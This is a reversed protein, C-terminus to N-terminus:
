RFPRRQNTRTFNIMTIGNATATPMAKDAGVIEAGYIDAFIKLYGQFNTLLIYEGFENLETGTYRTLWDRVIEDKTKM